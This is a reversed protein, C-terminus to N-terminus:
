LCAKGMGLGGGKKQSDLFMAKQKRMDKHAQSPWLQTENGNHEGTEDVGQEWVLYTGDSAGESEAGEGGAGLCVRKCVCACVFAYLCIYQIYIYVCM